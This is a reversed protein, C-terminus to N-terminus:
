QMKEEDESLKGMEGMSSSGGADAAAAIKLWPLSALKSRLPDSPAIPLVEAAAGKLSCRLCNRLLLLGLAMDTLKVTGRSEGTAAAAAAAALSRVRALRCFLGEIRGWGGLAFLLDGLGLKQLTSLRTLSQSNPAKVGFVARASLKSTPPLRLVLSLAALALRDPPDPSGAQRGDGVPVGMGGGDAAAMPPISGIAADSGVAPVSV